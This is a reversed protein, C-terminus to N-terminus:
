KRITSNNEIYKELDARLYKVKRGTATAWNFVMAKRKDRLSRSSLGTLEQAEKEDVWKPQKFNKALPQITKEIFSIKDMLNRWDKQPITIFEGM